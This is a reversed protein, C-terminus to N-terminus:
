KNWIGRAKGNIIRYTQIPMFVAIPIIVVINALVVGSLGLDLYKCFFLTLPIDLLAAIIYILLQLAIKGTGNIFFCFINFFAFISIFLGMLLSLMFPVKIDPGVYIRYIFNSIAIMFIVFVFIIAWLRTLKNLTSRIWHFDNKVYADTFASWFPFLITNFVLFVYSFCKYPVTYITVQSPGYLYSIILNNTAFIVLFAIQIIFFKGGLGGLEKFYKFYVFKVSPRISKYKGRFYYFSAGIYVLVPAASFVIGLYLLSKIEFHWLLLLFILSIINAIVDFSSSIYPNQDAILITSILQTVFRIVLFVVLYIVLVDIEKHLSPATNLIHTWDLFPNILLFILLIGTFILTMGAYTTSTYIRGMKFDEKAISETLKNRMGNGLGVDFTGLWLLVSSLTVWIGYEVKGLYHITLPFIIISILIGVGKIIFSFLINIKAKVTRASGQSFYDVVRKYPM